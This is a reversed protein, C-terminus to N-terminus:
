GSCQLLAGSTDDSSPHPVPLLCARFRQGQQLPHVRDEIQTWEGNNLTWTSRLTDPPVMMGPPKARFFVPVKAVFIPDMGPLSQIGEKSSLGKQYVEPPLIPTETYPFNPVDQTKSQFVQRKTTNVDTTPTVMDFLEKSRLDEPELLNILMCARNWSMPNKFGKTHIDAAMKSSVEYVLIYHNRQFHEHLSAIPIGHTRELHRMTPNRGSRVVGIMGQNDDHFLFQPLRKTLVKWISIAPIGLTRLTTDAAVIEAEPTSHSVCGQRKSGGTLPFRTHKGQANMHPGSTSRLTKACGAFDADAYLSLQLTDLGDGVWGIMKKQLTSNIYCM